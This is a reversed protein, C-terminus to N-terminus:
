VLGALRRLAEPDIVQIRGVEGRLVGDREFRRLVRIATEVSTGAAEALERRTSCAADGRLSDLLARALRAPAREHAFSHLQRHASRLRTAVIRLLEIGIRADEALLRLLVERPLCWAFGAEVAEASVPYRDVDLASLAGFVEGPGHTALTTPRGEPSLHYIRVAGRRVAWLSAAPDGERFLIRQRHFARERLAPRLRALADPALARFLEAQELAVERPREARASAARSDEGAAPLMPHVERVARAVAACRVDRYSV